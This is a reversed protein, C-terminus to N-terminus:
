FIISSTASFNNMMCLAYFRFKAIYRSWKGAANGDIARTAVGGYGTSEQTAIGHSTIDTYLRGLFKQLHVKKHKTV